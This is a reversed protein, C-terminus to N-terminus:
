TMLGTETAILEAAVEVDMQTMIRDVFADGEGTSVGLKAM